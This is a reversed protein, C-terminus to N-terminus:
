LILKSHLKEMSRNWLYRSTFIVSFIKNKRMCSYQYVKCVFLSVVICLETKSPLVLSKPCTQEKLRRSAQKLGGSWGTRGSDLLQISFAYIVICTLIIVNQQVYRSDKGSRHVQFSWVYLYQCPFIYLLERQTPLPPPSLYNSISTNLSLSVSSFLAWNASRCFQM